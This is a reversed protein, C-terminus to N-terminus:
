INFRRMWRRGNCHTCPVHGRKQKMLRNEISMLYKSGCVNCKWWVMTKNNDLMNDPDAGILINEAEAWEPMLDSHRVKFSNYGPMVRKGRCYPCADDGVERQAILHSYEGHCTPCVWLARLNMDRRVERATRENNPSWEKALEPDVTQLDNFGKLILSGRCYPCADDRVEREAISYSYEGHCTPCIWLARTQSTRRAADPRYGNNPSWEKALEPDLTQLDNEGPFVRSDNCRQCRFVGPEGDIISAFADSIRQQTELGCVPCKFYARKRSGLTFDEPRDPFNKEYDWWQRIDPYLKLINNEKQQARLKRCLGDHRIRVTGDPNTIVLSHIGTYLEMGCEPCTLYAQFQSGRTFQEPIFPANKEYNWWKTIEPCVVALNDEPNGKSSYGCAPCAVPGLTGDLRTVVFSHMDRRMKEGCAPCRVSVLAKSGKTLSDLPVTNSEDWWERLEPCQDVLSGSRRMANEANTKSSACKQCWNVSWTGDVQETFLNFASQFRIKGCMPCHVYIKKRSRITVEEPKAKNKEYDWYKRIEPCCAAINTKGQRKSQIRFSQGCELCFSVAYGTDTKKISDCLPRYLSKGCGPCLIYVRKGSSRTYAEPPKDNKEYDWYKLIDPCAEVLTEGRKRPTCKRCRAVKGIGDADKEWTARVSRYVPQGCVPCKTWVSVHSAPSIDSPLLGENKEFDWYGLIDPVADVLTNRRTRTRTNKKLAEAQAISLMKIAKPM